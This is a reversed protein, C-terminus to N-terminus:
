IMVKFNFVEVTSQVRTRLVSYMFSRSLAWMEPSFILSVQFAVPASRSPNGPGGMDDDPRMAHGYPQALGCRELPDFRLM